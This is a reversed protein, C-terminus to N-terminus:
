RFVLSWDSEVKCFRRLNQPSLPDLPPPFEPVGFASQTDTRSEPRFQRFSYKKRNNQSAKRKRHGNNISHVAGGGACRHWPHPRQQPEWSESSRAMCVIVVIPKSM